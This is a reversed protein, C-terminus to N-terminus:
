APERLMLTAAAAFDPATRIGTRNAADLDMARAAAAILLGRGGLVAAPEVDSARDGVFWSRALDIGLDAAARRFLRVGPKRCECPGGFDPHHPCHYIGAFRPGGAGLLEALRRNVAAFAEPPFFGRAIGSQNSVLVLALGAADLDALGAAVGPLLRVAAPDHLYGPDEVLTGDRDLFVARRLPEAL